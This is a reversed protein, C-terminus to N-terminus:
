QQFLCYFMGKQPTEVEKFQNDESSGAIPSPTSSPSDSDSINELKSLIKELDRSVAADSVAQHKRGKASKQLNQAQGKAKPGCIKHCTELEWPVNTFNSEQHSYKSMGIYDTVPGHAIQLRAAKIHVCDKGTQHFSTCTCALSADKEETVTAYQLASQKPPM